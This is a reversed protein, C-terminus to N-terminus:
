PPIKNHTSKTTATIVIKNPDNQQQTATTVVITVVTTAAIVIRPQPNQNQQAAAIVIRAATLEVVASAASCDYICFTDTTVAYLQLFCYGTSWFIGSDGLTHAQIFFIM